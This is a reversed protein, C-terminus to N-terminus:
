NVFHWKKGFRTSIQFYFLICVELVVSQPLKTHSPLPLPPLPISFGLQLQNITDHFVAKSLAPIKCFNVSTLKVLTSTSPSIIIM